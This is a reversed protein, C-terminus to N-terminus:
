SIGLHSSNLRTSKRDIRHVWILTMRGVAVFGEDDSKEQRPKEKWSLGALVLARRDMRLRVACPHSGVLARVAPRRSSLGVVSLPHGPDRANPSGPFWLPEFWLRLFGAVAAPMGAVATM